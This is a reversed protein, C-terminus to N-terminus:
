HSEPNTAVGTTEEHPALCQWGHKTKNHQTENRTSQNPKQQHETNSKTRMAESIVGLWNANTKIKNEIEVM